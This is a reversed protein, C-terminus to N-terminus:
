VWALFNLGSTQVVPLRGHEDYIGSYPNIKSPPLGSGLVAEPGYTPTPKPTLVVLGAKPFIQTYRQVLSPIIPAPNVTMFNSTISM